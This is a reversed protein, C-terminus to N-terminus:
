ETTEQEKRAEEALVDKKEPLIAAAIIYAVFGAFCLGAVIWLIRVLSPDVNFYEAVGGCVGCIKRGEDKKYLRKM